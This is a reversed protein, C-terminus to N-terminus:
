KGKEDDMSSRLSEEQNLLPIYDQRVGSRLKITGITFPRCQCQPCSTPYRPGHTIADGLQRVVFYGHIVLNCILFNTGYTGLMVITSSCWRSTTMVAWNRFTTVILAQVLCVLLGSGLCVDFVLHISTETVGSAQCGCRRENALLLASLTSFLFLPILGVAPHMDGSIIVQILLIVFAPPYDALSITPLNHFNSETFVTLNLISCAM